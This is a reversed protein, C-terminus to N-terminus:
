SRPTTKSARRKQSINKRAVKFGTVSTGIKNQSKASSMPSDYFHRRIKATNVASAALPAVLRHNGTAGQSPAFCASSAGIKGQEPLYIGRPIAM